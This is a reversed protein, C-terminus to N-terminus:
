KSAYEIFNNLKDADLNRGYTVDDVNASKELYEARTLQGAQAQAQYKDAYANRLSRAKNYLGQLDVSKSAEEKPEEENADQIVSGAAVSKEAIYVDKDDEVVEAEEQKPEPVVTEESLNKETNFYSAVLEQLDSVSKAISDLRENTHVNQEQSVEFSKSINDMSSTLISKFASLGSGNEDIDKEDYSLKGDKEFPKPSVGSDGDEELDKEAVEDKPESKEADKDDAEEDDDESKKADKKDEDEEVVEAKPESKETEKKDEEKDDYDENDESKEVKEDEDKDESKKAKDDEVVEDVSKETEPEVEESKEAEKDETEKDEKIEKDEEVSKEATLAQEANKVHEDFNSLVDKKAEM